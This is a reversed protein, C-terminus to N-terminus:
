SSLPATPSAFAAMRGWNSRKCSLPSATPLALSSSPCISRRESGLSSKAESARAIASWRKRVFNEVEEKRLLSAEGTAPNYCVVDRGTSRHIGIPHFRGSGIFLVADGGRAASFNCGLVQGRHATRTTGANLLVTTRREELWDKLPEILDLYQVTATIAVVGPDLGELVADLEDLGRIDLMEMRAEVFLVGGQELSPMPSHGVHVILDYGADLMWMPIDCAGYTPDHYIAAEGGSRREIEEAIIDAYGMLGEPLQVLIRAGKRVELASLDLTYPGVKM